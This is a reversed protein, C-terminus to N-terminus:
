DFSLDKSKKRENMDLPWAVDSAAAKTVREGPAAANSAGVHKRLEAIENQMRALEPSTDSKATPARAPKAAAALAAKESATLEDLIKGLKSYADQLRSLREKQMPAGRKEVVTSFPSLAGLAADFSAQDFTGADRMGKGVSLLKELSTQLTSLAKEAQEKDEMFPPKKKAAKEEDGDEDSPKKPNKGEDGDPEKAGFPPAKTGGFPPAKGAKEAAKRKEEEDEEPSAGADGGGFPPAKGAKEAAKRKEEEEDEAGPKPPEEGDAKALKFGGRGDSIVRMDGSRKVLVFTRKNAARDVLSVEEVLIDKLRNKAATTM